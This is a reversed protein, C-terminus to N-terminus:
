DKICRVSFGKEKNDKRGDVSRFGFYLIIFFANTESYEASSWWSGTQGVYFSYDKLNTRGAGPLGSFGSKNTAGQNPRQWHSYRKTKMKGGAIENGGLYNILASWEYYSPLHWGAPCSNMAAPWNYLVGYTRYNATAKAASVSSGQYGYVYYHASTNSGNASPSVSPLWKLNEKMWCQNGIQVTEYQNGDRTDLFKDGCRFESKTATPQVVQTKILGISRNVIEGIKLVISEQKTDYGAASVKATYTGVPIDEFVKMGTATFKEGADGTLEIQADFPTVAIQITGTQVTPFLDLTLRDNRKLVVQQELPEAKPMTVKVKVLQPPLKVNKPNAILRDNFYVSAGSHTNITLFGVNEELTYSKRTQPLAVELTQGEITVYGEKVIRIPYTGPKYFVALPTTGLNVGDLYVSAGAPTTEIQLGADPQRTLAIEFFVQQESVNIIKEETKFGEKEIKLTHSGPTLSHTTGSAPKGDLTLAADAPTIRITVPLTAAPPADGTVEIQWVERPKLSIGLESLTIQLKKYGTAYIELVRERHTVFVMDQGPKSEVSGVMGDWSDYSLGQLNTIVQIAAAYDGNIDRRAVMEGDLKKAKGTVRLQRLEQGNAQWVVSVLLFLLLIKQM